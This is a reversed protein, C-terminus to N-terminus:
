VLDWEETLDLLHECPKSEAMKFNYEHGCEPCVLIDVGFIRTDEMTKQVAENLWHKRFAMELCDLLRARLKDKDKEDLASFINRIDDQEQKNLKIKAM